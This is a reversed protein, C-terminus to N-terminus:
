EGSPATLWTDVDLFNGYMELGVPSVPQEGPLQVNNSVDTRDFWLNAGAPGRLGDASIYLFAQVPPM